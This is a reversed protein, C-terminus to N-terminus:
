NTGKRQDGIISGSLEQRLRDFDVAKGSETEVVVNPFLKGLKEINEDVINKTKMELKEVMYKGMASERVKHTFKEIIVM